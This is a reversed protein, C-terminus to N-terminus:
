LKLSQATSPISTTLEKINNTILTPNPPPFFAPSPRHAKHKILLGQVKVVSTKFDENFKHLLPFNLYLQIM